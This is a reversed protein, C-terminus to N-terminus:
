MVTISKAMKTKTLLEETGNANLKILYNGNSYIIDGNEYLAYDLIGKKLITENGDPTRKILEWNKPAFGPYQEGQKENEKEEKLVNILNGEIFLEEPNKEQNKAPNNGSTKLSQGSYRQTFFNLWGFIAKGLKVPIMIIDKISTSEKSNLSTYPKKLYYINGDSDEQPKIFDLKENTIIETLEGNKINLKYISRAGFGLFTESNIDRAIGCSDYYIEDTQTKSWTPNQDLCDGETIFQYDTNKDNFIALNVASSQGSACVAIRGSSAQYDLSFINMHNKRIIFGEPETEDLINKIHLGTNNEINLTYFIEDSKFKTLGGFSSINNDDTDLYATETRMFFAGSGATKWENKKQIERINRKYTELPQSTLYEIKENQLKAIKNDTIFLVKENMFAFDGQKVLVLM